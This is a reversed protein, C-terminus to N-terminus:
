RTARLATVIRKATLQMQGALVTLEDLSYTGAVMAVDIAALVGHEEDLVPVAVSCLEAVLEEKDVAFGDLRVRELEARLAAGSALRKAGIPGLKLAALLQQCAAPSLYALLVKGMATCYAPLRSASGLRLDIELLGGRRGRLRELLMIETDYLVAISVTRGTLARLEALLPRSRTRLDLSGLVALGADAARPTLRYRRGADQELYGLAALTAAYRHATSRSMGLRGALEAIGMRSAEGDFSALIALGSSLSQSYRGGGGAIESPLLVPTQESPDNHEKSLISSISDNWHDAARPFRSPVVPKDWGSRVSSMLWWV